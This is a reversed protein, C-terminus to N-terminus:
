NYLLASTYRLFIIRMCRQNLILLGILTKGAGTNLIGVIDKTDRRENWLSLFEQQNERLYAYAPKRNGFNFLEIPNIEKRVHQTKTDSILNKLGM